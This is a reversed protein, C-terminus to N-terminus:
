QIVGQQQQQEQEQQGQLMRMYDEHLAIAENENFGLKKLFLVSSLIFTPNPTNLLGEFKAIEEDNSSAFYPAIDPYIEFNITAIEDDLIANNIKGDKHYNFVYKLNKIGKLTDLMLQGESLLMHDYTANLPNQTRASNITRQQIAVGSIANTQNGKLEDFLQTRQEIEIDVRQLAQFLFPLLIESNILQVDRANDTAIIGRKQALQYIWETGQKSMDFNASSVILHKSDLGHITKTWIYNLTTSLDILGDVVGYPVGLYNKRLCLPIIPFHKQNPVQSAIAGSELLINDTFVGKWIQTGHLEKVEAGEVKRKNALEEDFTCFYQEVDVADEGDLKPDIPFLVTTEYYKVNKKYYVEVIRISRGRVWVCTDDNNHNINYDYATTTLNEKSLLQDFYDAHKDYREKLKVLPVYYSRIIFNSNECRQSQDDPDLFIERPDVHDYFFTKYTDAEYGFHSFGLGGILADVYKQTSKNQFDNQTQINYFLNNIFEAIKGHKAVSTTQKAAIRKRANIQLSTYSTITPEIRNITIPMVGIEKFESKLEDSWQDGYYFKLNIDYQLAWKKRVESSRAYEYFDQLEQLVKRQGITQEKM